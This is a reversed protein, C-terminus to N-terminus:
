GSRRWAKLVIHAMAEHAWTNCLQSTGRSDADRLAASAVVILAVLISYVSLRAFLRTGVAHDFIFLCLGM